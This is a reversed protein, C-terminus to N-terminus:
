RKGEGRALRTPKEKKVESGVSPSPWTSLRALQVDFSARQRQSCVPVCAIRKGIDSTNSHKFLKSDRKNCESTNTLLLTFLNRFANNKKQCPYIEFVDSDDAYFFNCYSDGKIICKVKHAAPKAYNIWRLCLKLKCSKM